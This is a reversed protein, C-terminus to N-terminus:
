SVERVDGRCLPAEGKHADGLSLQQSGQANTHKASILINHPCKGKQQLTQPHERMLQPTQPMLVQINMHENKYINRYHM